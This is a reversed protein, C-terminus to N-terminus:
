YIDERIIDLLPYTLRNGISVYRLCALPPLPIM